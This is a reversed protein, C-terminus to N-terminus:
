GYVRTLELEVRPNNADKLRRSGNYSEIQEDNELIKAKQLIDALAAYFGDADGTRRDRYFLAKVNVLGQITPQKARVLQPVAIDEFEEYAESPLLTHGNGKGRCIIRPSNKKTRPTAYITWVFLVTGVDERMKRAREILTGRPKARPPSTLGFRERQVDTLKAVVGSGWDSM